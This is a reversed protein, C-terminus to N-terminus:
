WFRGPVNKGFDKHARCAWYGATLKRNPKKAKDACNHRSAFSKRAEASNWNGKLGGKSDGYTITRINGTKPDKVYVKYKKGGGSNKMPKNLPGKKKKEEYLAPSAEVYMPFDLPVDQGEEEHWAWEGLDPNENIFEQEEESFDYKGEKNLKKAEEILEFYADSGLRYICETIPLNNDIHHQMGESIYDGDRHQMVKKMKKLLDKVDKETIGSEVEKASKVLPDLGAAGGEDSLTDLIAKEVKPQIEKNIEELIIKRLQSKTIKM